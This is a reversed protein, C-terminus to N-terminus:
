QEEAEKLKKREEPKTQREILEKVMRNIADKYKSDEKKSLQSNAEKVQKPTLVSFNKFIGVKSLQEYMMSDLAPQEREYDVLKHDFFM